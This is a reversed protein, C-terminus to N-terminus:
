FATKFQFYARKKWINRYVDNNYFDLNDSNANQVLLSIESDSDLLKFRKALRFDVRRYSPVPDGEGYWAMADTFYYATSAEIDFPFRHSLLLSFTHSPVRTNVEEDYYDIGNELRKLERGKTHMYSYGLFVLDRHTPLYKTSVEIGRIDAKGNNSYTQAGKHILDNFNDLVTTDSLGRDPDPFDLDRYAIIVDRYREKFLKVDLTLGIENFNGLYGLEISDIKQPDINDEARLWTNFDNLPENIFINLNVHEEYLTPMRYARSTNIRLTNQRNLHLNGAARYSFIPDNGEYDELMGGLNFVLKNTAQWEGNAFLRALDRSIAGTQHFIQVSKAKDRRLGAGWAFRFASSTQITQEFELDYRDSEMGLWSILFRGDNINMATLFSNFDAAGMQLAFFDLRISAPVAQLAQLSMVMESIPPSAYEDEIEQHNHYFRLRFHNDTSQNHTWGIQQFHYSNDLERIKQLDTSYGEQYVGQSAGLMLQLQNDKDFEKEGNFYIWGSRFDDDREDFGDGKDYATSLKFSFDKRQAAYRGYLKKRGGEGVTASIKAGFADAPNDTIINIVGAYANSGYATANPGRIVEIRNVDEIDIPMDSWSVGGYAPDYVSRGDILVQMDRAYQDSLGHYSATARSGAYFAVTFGPVLRLLDPISLAGTARIMGKDIVTMANPTDEIPQSLRTSTLTVPFEEFYYSESFAIEEGAKGESSFFLAAAVCTTGIHLLKDHGFNDTNMMRDAITDANFSLSYQPVQQLDLFLRMQAPGAVM